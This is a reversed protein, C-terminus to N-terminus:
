DQWAHGDYRILENMRRSAVKNCPASLAAQKTAGKCEMIEEQYRIFGVYQGNAGPRLETRVNNTDVHIYTAVWESGRKKVEKNAKNPLLTRASQAVLKNGMADLEKKIQEESKAGKKSKSASAKKSAKKTEPKSVPEPTVSSEEHIPEAQVATETNSEDDGFGLWACGNCLFALMACAM